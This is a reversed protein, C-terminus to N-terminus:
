SAAPEPTYGADKIVSFVKAAEAGRVRVLHRDLDTTVSSGPIERQLAKSITGVCHGCTMDPVRVAVETNPAPISSTSMATSAPSPGM